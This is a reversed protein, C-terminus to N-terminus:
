FCVLQPLYTARSPWGSRRSARNNWYGEGKVMLGPLAGVERFEQDIMKYAAAKHSKFANEGAGGMVQLPADFRAFRIWSAKRLLDRL